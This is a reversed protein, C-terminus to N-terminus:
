MFITKYAEFFYYQQGIFGRCAAISERL